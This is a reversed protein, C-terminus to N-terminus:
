WIGKLYGGWALGSSVIGIAEVVIEDVVTVAESALGRRENVLM